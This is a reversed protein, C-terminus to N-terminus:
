AAGEGRRSLWRATMEVAVPYPTSSPILWGEATALDPEREAFENCSWCAPVRLAPDYASGRKRSRKLPEHFCAARRDCRACLTGAAVM